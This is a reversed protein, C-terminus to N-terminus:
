ALLYSISYTREAARDLRDADSLIGDAVTSKKVSGHRAVRLLLRYHALNKRSQAYM